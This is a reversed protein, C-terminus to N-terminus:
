IQFVRILIMLRLYLPSKGNRQKEAKQFAYFGAKEKSEKKARSSTEGTEQFKKSAVAVGGGLTQGYAGGRTVLTFGDEDVIADGKRYKSKQKSKALEFEFLEMYSDAHARIADLPPRLSDYLATYHSLGLPEETSTPWPRPKHPPAMCRELSSSDLFVIHASRGTKRLIRLSKTHLPIVQPPESKAVKRRKRPQVEAGDVVENPDVEEEEEESDSDVDDIPVDTADMDFSVREVTGYSKFLLTLERDTADPPVNVLFLTRGQPWVDRAKGKSGSHSRAYLYHTSSTSYTIPLVTFGNLSTPLPM